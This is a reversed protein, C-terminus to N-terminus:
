KIDRYSGTLSDFARLHVYTSSATATAKNIAQAAKEPAPFLMYFVMMILPVLWKVNSVIWKFINGFNISSSEKKLSELENKIKDLEQHGQGIHENIKNEIKDLRDDLRDLRDKIFEMLLNYDNTSM